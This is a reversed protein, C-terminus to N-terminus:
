SINGLSSLLIELFIDFRVAQIEAEQCEFNYKLIEYEGKIKAYNSKAEFLMQETELRKKELLETNARAENEKAQRQKIEFDFQEQQRKCIAAKSNKERELSKNIDKLSAIERELVQKENEYNQVKERLESLESSTDRKLESKAEFLEAKLSVLELLLVDKQDRLLILEVNECNNQKEEAKRLNQETEDLKQRLASNEEELTRVRQTLVPDPHEEEKSCQTSRETNGRFTVNCEDKFHFSSSAHAKLEENAARLQVITTELMRRENANEDITREHTANAAQLQLQLEEVEQAAIMRLRNCENKLEQIKEEGETAIQDIQDILIANDKKCEEYKLELDQRDKTLAEYNGTLFAIEGQLSEIQASKMRLEDQSNSKADVIQMQLDRIRNRLNELEEFHQKIENKCIELENTKQKMENNCIELENTKQKMEECVRINEERYTECQFELKKIIQLQQTVESNKEATAAQLACTYRKQLEELESAMSEKESKLFAIQEEIQSKYQQSELELENIRQQLGENEDKHHQSALELENIRQALVENEDKQQHSQFEVEIIRQKLGENEALAQSLSQENAENRLRLDNSLTELFSVEEKLKLEQEEAKVSREREQVLLIEIQDSKSQFETCLRQVAAMEAKIKDEAVSSEHLRAKLTRNEESAEALQKTLQKITENQHSHNNVEDLIPKLNKAVSSINEQGQKKPTIDQLPLKDLSSHVISTSNEEKRGFPNNKSKSNSNTISNRQPIAPIKKPEEFAQSRVSDISSIEESCLSPVNSEHFNLSHGDDDFCLTSRRSDRFYSNEEIFTSQFMSSDGYQSFLEDAGM